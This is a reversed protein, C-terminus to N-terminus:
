REVTVSIPTDPELERFEEPLALLLRRTHGALVVGSPATTEESSITAGPGEETVASGVAYSIDSLVLRTSGRNELLVEAYATEGGGSELSRYVIAAARVVPDAESGIPRVYLSAIYRLNMRIRASSEPNDRFDVPVQEAIVRFPQEVAVDGGQWEVMVTRREGSGLVLQSPYAVIQEAPSLSEEGNVDIERRMVEMQVAIPTAGDNYITYRMRPQSGDLEIEAVMPSLTFSYLSHAALLLFLTLCHRCVLSPRM